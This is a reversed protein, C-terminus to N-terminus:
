IKRAYYVIMRIDFTQAAPQLFMKFILGNNLNIESHNRQKADDAAHYKAVINQTGNFEKGLPGELVIQNEQFDRTGLISKM